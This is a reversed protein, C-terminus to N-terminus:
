GRGGGGRRFLRLARGRARRFLDVAWPGPDDLSFLASVCPGALSRRWAKRTLAGRAMALSAARYDATTERWKVPRRCPRPTQVAVGAMNGFLALPLNVGNATAIGSQFDTRGVTPEIALFRGDRPDRKYEMSGLGRYGVARFFRVTEAELGPLKAPEASATGGTLPPWQRIKRGMFTGLCEGEEGFAVLCFYVEGDGGPIWEELIVEGGGFAEYTEGARAPDEVRVAKGAGGARKFLPKMVVPFRLAGVAADLSSRDRVTVHGPGALGHELALARFRDKYMLRRVTDKDPLRFVVNSPLRDRAESLALVTADMTPFLAYTRGDSALERLTDVVAPGRIDPTQVRFLLYKSLAGPGELDSDVGVVPVRHRGLARVVDLGNLELGLVVAHVDGYRVM